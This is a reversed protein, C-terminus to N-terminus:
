SLNAIFVSVRVLPDITLFWMEYLIPIRIGQLVSFETAITTRPKDALEELKGEGVDLM